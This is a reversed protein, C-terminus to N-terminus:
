RMEHHICLDYQSGAFNFIIAHMYFLLYIVVFFLVCPLCDTIDSVGYECIAITKLIVLEYRDM